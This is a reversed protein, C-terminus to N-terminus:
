IRFKFGNEQIKPHSLVAVKENTVTYIIRCVIKLWETWTSGGNGKIIEVM